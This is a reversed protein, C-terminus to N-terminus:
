SHQHEEMPHHFIIIYQGAEDNSFIVSSIHVTHVTHANIIISNKDNLGLVKTMSVACTLWELPQLPLFCTTRLNEGGPKHGREPQALVKEYKNAPQCNASTV